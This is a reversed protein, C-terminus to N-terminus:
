VKYSKENDSSEENNSSDESKSYNKFLLNNYREMLFSREICYFFFCIILIFNLVSVVITDTLTFFNLSLHSLIPNYYCIMHSDQVCISNIYDARNDFLNVKMKINENYSLVLMASCEYKFSLDGEFKQLSVTQIMTDTILCTSKNCLLLRLILYSDYLLVLYVIWICIKMNLLRRKFKNKTFFYYGMMEFEEEMEKLEKKQKM